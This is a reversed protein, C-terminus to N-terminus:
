KDNKLEWDLYNPDNFDDKAKLLFSAHGCKPCKDPVIRARILAGCYACEYLLYDGM